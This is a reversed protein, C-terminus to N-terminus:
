IDNFYYLLKKMPCRCKWFQQLLTDKKRKQIGFWGEGEFLGALFILQEKKTLEDFV